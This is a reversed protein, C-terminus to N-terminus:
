NMKIMWFYNRFFRKDPVLAAVFGLKGLPSSTLDTVAFRVIDDFNKEPMPVKSSLGVFGKLGTLPLPKSENLSIATVQFFM